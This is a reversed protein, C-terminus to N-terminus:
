NIHLFPIKRLVWHVIHWVIVLGEITLALGFAQAIATVDFVFSFNQIYGFILSISSSVISPLQSSVPLFGYIVNLFGFFVIFMITFIM